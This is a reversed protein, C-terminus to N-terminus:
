LYLLTVGCILLIFLSVGLAPRGGNVIWEFFFFGCILMGPVLAKDPGTFRLKDKAAAPMPPSEGAPPATQANETNTATSM